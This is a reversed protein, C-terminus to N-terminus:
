LQINPRLQRSNRASMHWQICDRTMNNCSPPVWGGTRLKFPKSHNPLKLISRKLLCNRWSSFAREQAQGWQIKNPQRKRTLDTLPAAVAAFTPIHARYYNALGWFSRVEKKTTPRRATRIKELNNENDNVSLDENGRIIGTCVDCSMEQNNDSNQQPAGDQDAREIYKKLMNAHFTKVKKNVEVRRDNGKGCRSMIEYPEKWQMLLKNTDTPLLM